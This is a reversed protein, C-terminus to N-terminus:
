IRSCCTGTKFRQATLSPSLHASSISPQPGPVKVIHSLQFLRYLLLKDKSSMIPVQNFVQNMGETSYRMTAVVIGGIEESAFQGSPKFTANSSKIITLFALKQFITSIEGNDIEQLDTVNKLSQLHEGYWKAPINLVKLIEKLLSISLFRAISRV